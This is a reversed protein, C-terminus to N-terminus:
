LANKIEEKYEQEATSFIEPNLIADYEANECLPFPSIGVVTGFVTIGRASASDTMFGHMIGDTTGVTRFPLTRVREAFDSDEPIGFGRESDWLVGDPLLKEATESNTIIVPKGSFPETLTCGTDSFARMVASKEGLTIEIGFILTDLQMNRKCVRSLLYVTLYAALTSVALVAPPISIYIEGNSVAAGIATGFDSLFILAFAIGGFVAYVGFCVATNKLLQTIRRCPFAIRCPLLMFATKFLASGLFPLQPFFMVASYLASVAAAAALASISLRRKLILSAAFIIISDMLFNILFLMDVYVVPVGKVEKGFDM